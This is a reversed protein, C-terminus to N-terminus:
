IKEPNFHPYKKIHNQMSLLNKDWLNKIEDWTLWLWEEIKDPEKNQLEWTFIKTFTTISIYHKENHPYIENVTSLIEIDAVNCKLWTEEYLERMACEEITEGYELKGWPTSYTNNWHKSKRLGYLIKGDNNVVLIWVGVKIIKEM